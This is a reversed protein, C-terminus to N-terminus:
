NQSSKIYNAREAWHILIILKILRTILYKNFIKALQDVIIM